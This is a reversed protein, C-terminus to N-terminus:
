GIFDVLEIVTMKRLRDVSIWHSNLAHQKADDYARKRAEIVIENYGKNFEIVQARLNRHSEILSEITIPLIHNPDIEKTYEELKQLYYTSDM